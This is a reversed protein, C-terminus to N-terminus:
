LCKAIKIQDCQRLRGEVVVIAFVIQWDQFSFNKNQFSKWIKHVPLIIKLSTKMGPFEPDMVMVEEKEEKAVYDFFSKFNNQWRFQPKLNQVSTFSKKTKTFYDNWNRAGKENIKHRKLCCSCIFNWCNNHFLIWLHLKFVCGRSFSYEEWLLRVM